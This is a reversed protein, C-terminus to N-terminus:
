HTYNNVMVIRTQGEEQPWGGHIGNQYTIVLSGAKALIPLAFKPDLLVDEPAYIGSYKENTLISNVKGKNNSHSKPVYTYPGKSLDFVDSLYVFSKFTEGIGDIHLGRPNTISHNYYINLQREFIKLKTQNQIIDVIDFNSQEKYITSLNPFKSIIKEFGFYDIMGGDVNDRGRRELFVPKPYNAYESYSKLKSYGVQALFQDNEFFEETKLKELIPKINDEFEVGAIIAIDNPIFDKIIIIGYKKLAESLKEKPHNREFTFDKTELQHGFNTNNVSVISNKIESTLITKKARIKLRKQLFLYNQIKKILKM